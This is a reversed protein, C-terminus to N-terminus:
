VYNNGAKQELGDSTRVLVVVGDDVHPVFFYCVVCCSLLVVGVDTCAVCM